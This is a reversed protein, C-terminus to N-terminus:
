DLEFRYLNAKGDDVYGILDRDKENVAIISVERDLELIKVPNGGWDYVLVRKSKLPYHYEWPEDSYLVYIYDESVTTFVNGFRNEKKITASIMNPGSSDEFETPWYHLSKNIILQGEENLELFDMNFSFTSSALVLSKSPHKYFNSQYAMDLTSPAIGEFKEQFPFTGVSQIEKGKSILMFPKEIMGAGLFYDGELKIATRIFGDFKGQFPICDPDDKSELIQGIPYEQFERMEMEYVGLMDGNKGSKFISLFPNMECPGQGIKGFRKLFRDQDVDIIKFLYELEEDKVFLFKDFLLIEGARFLSDSSHLRISNLRNKVQFEILPNEVILADSCSWLLFGGILYLLIYIVKFRLRRKSM